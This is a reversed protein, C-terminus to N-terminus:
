KMMEKLDRIKDKGKIVQGQYKEKVLRHYVAGPSGTEGKSTKANGAVILGPVWSPLPTTPGGYLLAQPEDQVGNARTRPKLFLALYSSGDPLSKYALSSIWSSRSHLSTAM